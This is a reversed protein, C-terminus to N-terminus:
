KIRFNIGLTFNHKDAGIRGVEQGFNKEALATISWRPGLRYQAGLATNLMGYNFHERYKELQASTSTQDVIRYLRYDSRGYFYGAQAFVSLRSTRLFHYQTSLGAGLYRNGDHGNNTYRGELRLALGDKLFYQTYPTARIYGGGGVSSGWGAGVGVGIQFQGQDLGTTKMPSQARGCVPILLSVLLLYTKM